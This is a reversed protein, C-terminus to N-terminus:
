MDIPGIVSSPSSGSEPMDPEAVSEEVTEGALVRGGANSTRRNRLSGTEAVRANGGRDTSLRRGGGISNRRSWVPSGLSSSLSPPPVSPYSLTSPTFDHQMHLLPSTSSPPTTVQTQYSYGGVPLVPSIDGSAPISSSTSSVAGNPHHSSPSTPSFPFQSSPSNLSSPSNSANPTTITSPVSPRHTAALATSSRSIPIPMGVVHQRNANQPTGKVSGPHEISQSLPSSSSQSRLHIPQSYVESSSSSLGILNDIPLGLRRRLEILEERYIDNMRALRIYGQESEVLRNRLEENERRMAELMITQAPMAFGAGSGVSGGANSHEGVM